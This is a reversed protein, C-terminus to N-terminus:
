EPFVIVVKGCQGADMVRYAEPAQELTFRHTVTKEPHLEWRSLREALEAMHGLSTVWSGYLTIQPLILWPSVDFQVHNGEGVFACRGWQRTGQLALLRAPPAGSCDVSAECGKGKTLEQIRSLADADSTVTHDVL